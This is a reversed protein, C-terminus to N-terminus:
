PISRSRRDPAAWPRGVIFPWAFHALPLKNQTNKPSLCSPKPVQFGPIRAYLSDAVPSLCRPKPVQRGPIRVSLSDAVPSLCRPKPVQRGLIRVYLLIVICSFYSGRGQSVDKNPSYIYIYIYIYIFIRTRYKYVNETHTRLLRRKQGGRGFIVGGDNKPIQVGGGM